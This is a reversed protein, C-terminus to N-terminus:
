KIIKFDPKLIVADEKSEEFKMKANLLWKRFLEPTGYDKYNAKGSINNENHDIVIYLPQSVEKYRRISLDMWQDGVTEMANGSVMMKGLNDNTLPTRDDVYLSAIVFDNAMLPAVTEDAWVNAEMLRCNVCAWGTFDLLLPKGEQKAYDLAEYYDAITTIGHGHAKASEPMGEKLTPVEGNVGFPSEAYTAPPVYAAVVKIPAGWMGPILYIVFYLVVLAFTARGVSLKTVPSDHPLQIKGILYIFLMLFIAIWLALFTERELLHWQKVLDANSLFKLAFALELFGLTVKVTNLWGGSQPMSNLWGPFAAFLGFPLALALSFGLMAVIPGSLGGQASQVLVSGVIPGTCSFSVLALTFAMFFIGILGGKDAQKDAKNIWSAPLSIEFAGLFSIAFIVFLIFFVINVYPHTAMENLASSGFVSAVLVGLLVYIGIISLSYFIAKRIGEAKTKSQKTFFTVTMPIMPFVCPTMLALLGGGFAIIFIIWLSLSSSRSGNDLAKSLDFNIKTKETNKFNNECGYLYLDLDGSVQGINLTDKISILQNVQVSYKYATTDNNDNTIFKPSTIEKGGNAQYLDSKSLEFLSTYGNPNNFAYMGFISDVEILMSLTYDLLDTRTPKFVKIRVPKFEDSYKFGECTGTLTYLSSDIGLNEAGLEVTEIINEEETSTNEDVADVGKIKLKYTRDEPPLCSEKCVMFTYDIEIEFDEKSLIKIKQKFTAKPGDFIREPFQGDHLTSGYEKTKGVLKYSNNNKFKFVTSQSIGGEPQVQGYIHWGDKQIVTIVITADDGSGYVTEFKWTLVEDSSSIFDQSYGNQFIALLLILLLYVKKM